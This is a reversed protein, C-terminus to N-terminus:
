QITIKSCIQRSTLLLDTNCDEQANSSFHTNISLSLASVQSKNRLEESADTDVSSDFVNYLISLYVNLNAALFTTFQLLCAWVTMVTMRSKATCTFMRVLHKKCKKEMTKLASPFLRHSPAWSLTRSRRFSIPFKDKDEIHALGRYSARPLLEQMTAFLRVLEM